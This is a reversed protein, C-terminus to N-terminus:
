PQILAKLRFAFTTGGPGSSVEIRSEHAEVIEKAIALGLGTGAGSRATDARYFREFVREIEDHPIGPGQDAVEFVVEEGSHVARISVTTGAPSHKIANDTFSLLVQIVKDRDVAVRVDPEPADVVLAIGVQEALTSMVRSVGDLLDGVAHPARELELGGAELRALILLDAVLRSLRDTELQMTRIFDDRVEPVESAGDALLELMGKLAAIPTRLEHSADAVFRRQAEEVRFRETVDSLILVSGAVAYGDSLPTSHLLVVSGGLEVTGTATEGALGSDVVGLTGPTHHLVDGAARGIADATSVGLLSAAEPNMIRVVGDHDFAVVGEAMSEIVATVQRRSEELEGFAEGLTVAMRNYSMGLERIEDPVFGVPVRRNFDGAAITAAADSMATVRSRILESFGFGILGAIGLSIWFTTWMRSRVAGLVALSDTVQHATVVVAVPEGGAGRVVAGSIAFGDHKLSATARPTRGAVARRRAADLDATSPSREFSSNMLEGDLGYLWVGGGYIALHEGIASRVEAGGEEGAVVGSRVRRALASANRYESAAAQEALTTNLGASLSGSLILIAVVIVVVFLGTLWLRISAGIPPKM